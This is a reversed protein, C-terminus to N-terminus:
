KSNLITDNVRDQVAFLSDLNTLFATDKKNLDRLKTSFDENHKKDFLIYNNMVENKKGDKGGFTVGEGNWYVFKKKM